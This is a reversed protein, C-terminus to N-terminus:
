QDMAARFKILLGIALAGPLLFMLLSQVIGAMDQIVDTQIGIVLDMIDMCFRVALATLISYYSRFIWIGVLMGVAIALYRGASNLMIFDTAGGTDIGFQLMMGNGDLYSYVSFIVTWLTLYGPFVFWWNPLKVM